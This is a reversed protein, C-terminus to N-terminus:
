ENGSAIAHRIWPEVVEDAIQDSNLEMFFMHGNGHLGVNELRIHTVNVGAEELFQVTFEDYVAHYGSESTVLLVPVQALHVLRRPPRAQQFCTCDEGQRLAVPGLDSASSIPPDFTLPIDTLGYIRVPNSMIIANRFPPGNPELAVIAKVLNPRADALIWGFGGSQSHTVVVVPGIKDLLESGAAKMLESTEATSTLSPVLSRYFAEFVPDGKTGSGPWQGHLSAQPWNGYRATATVLSEVNDTTFISTDGDVNSQWASRGRAPQDVIFVEYGQNLFYDSWGPRGDPTNLWNTGTMGNGHIFLIPTSRTVQAPTLREVYLQGHCIEGSGHPVYRGGVYFYQRTHLARGSPHPM